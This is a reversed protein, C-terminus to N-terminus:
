MTNNIEQGEEVLKFFTKMKGEANEAFCKLEPSLTEGYINHIYGNNQKDNLMDSTRLLKSWSFIGDYLDPDKYNDDDEINMTLKTQQTTVSVDDFCWSLRRWTENTIDEKSAIM